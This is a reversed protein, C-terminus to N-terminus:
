SGKGKKALVQCYAKGIGDTAGTVVAWPGLRKPNIPPQLFHQYVFTLAATIKNISVFAGLGVLVIGAWAATADANVLNVFIEPLSM